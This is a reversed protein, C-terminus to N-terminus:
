CKKAKQYEDVSDKFVSKVNEYLRVDYISKPETLRKEISRGM